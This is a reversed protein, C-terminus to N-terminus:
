KDLNSRIEKQVEERIAKVEKLIEDLSMSEDRQLKLLTTVIRMTWFWWLMTGAVALAVLPILLNYKDIFSWNLFIIPYFIVASIGLIIWRAAQDELARLIQTRNNAM